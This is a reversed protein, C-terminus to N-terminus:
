PPIGAQLSIRSAGADVANQILEFLYLNINPITSVTIELADLVQPVNCRELNRTSIDLLAQQKAPTAHTLFM